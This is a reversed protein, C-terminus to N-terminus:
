NFFFGTFKLTGMVSIYECIGQSSALDRSIQPAHKPFWQEINYYHGPQESVSSGLLTYLQLQCLMTAALSVKSFGHLM